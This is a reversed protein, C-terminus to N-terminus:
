SAEQADAAHGEQCNQHPCPSVEAGVRHPPIAEPHNVKSHPGTPAEQHCDFIAPPNDWFDRGQILFYCVGRYFSRCSGCYVTM